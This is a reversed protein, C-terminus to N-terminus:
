LVKPCHPPNQCIALLPIWKEEDHGLGGSRVPWMPGSTAGFEVDHVLVRGTPKSTCVCPACIFLAILVARIEAIMPMASVAAEPVAVAVFAM